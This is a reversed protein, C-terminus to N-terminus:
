RARIEGHALLWGTLPMSVIAGVASGLLALGLVGTDRTCNAKFAPIRSVWTAEILGHILFLISVAARTNVAAPSRLRARARERLAELSRFVIGHMGAAQAGEINVERDDLFLAQEPACAWGKLCTGTSAEEPKVAGSTAPIPRFRSTM